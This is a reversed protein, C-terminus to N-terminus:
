NGSSDIHGVISGGLGYNMIQYNESGFRTKVNFKMVLNLRDSLENAVPYVDENMYMVKSTRFKTYTEVKAKVLLPTARM